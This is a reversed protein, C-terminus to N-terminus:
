KILLLKQAVTQTKHKAVIFYTGSALSLGNRDYGNWNFNYKGEVLVGNNITAVNKGLINYIDINVLGTKPISINFHTVPNFPNPYAPSIDFITPVINQITSLSSIYNSPPETTFRIIRGNELPAAGDSYVNNFVYQLGYNKEPSEIGVTSYNKTVDVDDIELYQFEIVGDGTGTPMSNQDYLIVQFTEETVEDYGNLARSWEIIFKGNSEDHYTYVNVWIDIIGDGDSDITELDDSFPALMAKPGMYMPISMNWFYDINCPEFSTWGNSSITIQDYDIGHYQFTFPLELNVHDDDDLQHHQSNYSEGIAFNPDLEIWNFEPSEAYGQDTNDYAWYGYNSPSVPYNSAPTPVHLVVEQRYFERYGDAGHSSLHVEFTLDSGYAIDELLIDYNIQHSSTSFPQLSAFQNSDEDIMIQAGNSLSSLSIFLESYEVASYNTISLVPSLESNPVPQNDFTVDIIPVIMDIVFDIGIQDNNEYSLNGLISQAVDTKFATIALDSIITSEGTGLFPISIQISSPTVNESFTVTAVSSNIDNLTSNNKIELEFSFPNGLEPDENIIVSMLELNQDEAPVIINSHGQIYGGKNAYVDIIDLEEVDLTSAYLGDEGTIGKSLMVGGSMISIVANDVPHGDSDNITIQVFKDSKSINNEIIDFHKPTDLYVQLSPDGLINYVNAYFEQAEGPGDQAPFEKTLGWQGAQMAPGLEVVDYNLMADYMYANIVNNYKTSTHLDSPGIFAVGGKPVTPTGGRLVAEALCPDVNNAFDNSNCVYSMFVPTLWGNNLDNVDEVHFEPYHWGNADGWGRYNVIGVGNDIIQIIQSAGQATPPYYVTDIQSYGYDILEDTLWYSTWKPTIPVPYTNAYNGAVILGRDLWDQNFALPNRAYQITKAMIVALDSLSDISLRGIFVEPTPDNGLIHTFQQDSVDNEPGYYFSPFEAFGDVDGILLVYELMPDSELYNSITTKVNVATGGAESLSLLYVDFGQSYKFEVFDGLYQIVGDPAIIMYSGRQPNIQSPLIDYQNYFINTFSMPVRSGMWQDQTKGRILDNNAFLQSVLLLYLTILKKFTHM